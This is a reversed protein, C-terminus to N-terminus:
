QLPLIEVGAGAGVGGGWRWVIVCSRVDNCCGIAEVRGVEVVGVVMLCVDADEVCAIRLDVNRVAGISLETSM